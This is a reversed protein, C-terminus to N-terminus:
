FVRGLQIPVRFLLHVDPADNTVGAEINVNLSTQPTFAYNLGLELTGVELTGSRFNSSQGNSLDISNQNTSFVYSHKYGLSFSTDQNIAFGIGFLANIANGPDVSTIRTTGFNRNIDRPVDYVYGLNAFLVAPDSVKIATVSAEATQFGTGTPLRSTINSANYPIDYPGDANNAKYRLNGILFPWGQQGNNMQYSVGMDIDGLGAGEETSQTTVNTAPNTQTLADNRYVYPAHVDVELRDTLGLRFRGSYQAVQHRVTSNNLVGVLVVQALEVGNFSFLNNTTNTYELASEYTLMGAPSLIGGQNALAEIQPPRQDQTTETAVSTSAGTGRSQELILSSLPHLNQLPQPTNDAPNPPNSSATAQKTQNADLLAQIQQNQSSIEKAQQDLVQQQQDLRSELEAMNSQDDAYVPVTVFGMGMFLFGVCAFCLRLLM